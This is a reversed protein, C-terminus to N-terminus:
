LWGRLRCYVTALSNYVAFAKESRLKWDSDALSFPAHVPTPVVSIGHKAFMRTARRIHMSHTLMWIAGSPLAHRHRKIWRVVKITTHGSHEPLATLLHSVPVGYEEALQRMPESECIVLARPHSRWIEAARQVIAASIPNVVRQYKLEGIM